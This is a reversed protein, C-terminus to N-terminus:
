YVKIVINILGLAKFRNNSYTLNLLGTMTFPNLKISFQPPVSGEQKSGVTSTSNRVLIFVRRDYSPDLRFLYEVPSNDVLSM